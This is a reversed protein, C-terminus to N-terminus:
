LVVNCAKNVLFVKILWVLSLNSEFDYYNRTNFPAVLFVLITFSSIASYLANNSCIWVETISLLSGMIKFPNGEIKVFFFDSGGRKYILPSNMSDIRLIGLMSYKM